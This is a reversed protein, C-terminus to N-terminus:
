EENEKKLINSPQLLLVLYIPYSVFLPLDFRFISTSGAMFTIWLFLHPLLILAIKRRDKKMLSLVCLLLFWIPTSMSFISDLLINNKCYHYLGFEKYFSFGSKFKCHRKYVYGGYYVMKPNAIRTVEIYYKEVHKNYPFFPCWQSINTHLFADMYDVPYRSLLSGWEKFYLDKNNDFRDKNINWKVLDANDKKYWKKIKNYPVFYNITKKDKSTLEEDRNVVVHSMQQMPIAMMETTPGDKIGLSHYLPNNIIYFSLISALLIIIVRKWDKRMAIIIFPTSLILAYIANNRLLCCVTILAILLVIKYKKDLYKKPNSIIRLVQVTLVVFVGAFLVDKTTTISFIAMVPNVSFFLFAIIIIINNIKKDILYKIVYAFCFSMVTMQFLSYLLAADIKTISRIFLCGYWILTHLPPHWKSMINQNDVDYAQNGPWFALLCPIWSIFILAWIIFFTKKQTLFQWQPKSNQLKKEAFGFFRGILIGLILGLLLILVFGILTIIYHDLLYQITNYKILVHGVAFCILWMWTFVAWRINNKIETRIFNM